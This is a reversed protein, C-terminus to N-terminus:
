LRRVVGGDRQELVLVLQYLRALGELLKQAPIGDVLPSEAFLQANMSSRM